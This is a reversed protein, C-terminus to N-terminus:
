SAPGASPTGYRHHDGLPPAAAAASSPPPYVGRPTGVASASSSSSLQPPLPARSSSGWGTREDAPLPARATTSPPPPLPERHSPTSREYSAKKSSGSPTSMTGTTEAQYYKPNPAFRPSSLTSDAGPGPAFRRPASSSTPPPPLPPRNSM